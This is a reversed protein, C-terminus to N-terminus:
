DIKAMLDVNYLYNRLISNDVSDIYREGLFAADMIAEIDIVPWKEDSEAQEVSEGYGYIGSNKQYSLNIWHGEMSFGLAEQLSKESVEQWKEKPAFVPLLFHEDQEDICLYLTAYSINWLKKAYNDVIYKSLLYWEGDDGTEALAVTVKIDPHVKFDGEMPITINIQDISEEVPLQKPLAVVIDKLTLRQRTDNSQTNVIKNM